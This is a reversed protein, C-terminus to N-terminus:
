ANHTNGPLAPLKALRLAVLLASVFLKGIFAVSLAAAPALWALVIGAILGIVIQNVLVLLALSGFFYFFNFNKPAYYKSLHDEWM